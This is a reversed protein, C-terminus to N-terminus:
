PQQPIQQPQSHSTQLFLTILDLTIPWILISTILWGSRTPLPGPAASYVVLCLAANALFATNLAILISRTPPIHRRRLYLTISSAPM